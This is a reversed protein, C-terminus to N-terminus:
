WKSINWEGFDNITPTFILIVLARYLQLHQNLVNVIYKTFVNYERGGESRDGHESLRGLGKIFVHRVLRLPM